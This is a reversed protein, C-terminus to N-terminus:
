KKFESRELEAPTKQGSKKGARLRVLDCTKSTKPSIGGRKSANPKGKSDGLLSARGDKRKIIIIRKYIVGNNGEAILSCSV